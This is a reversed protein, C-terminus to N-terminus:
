GLPAPPSKSVLGDATLSEMQGEFGFNGYKGYQGPGM